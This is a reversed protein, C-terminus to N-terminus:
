TRAPLRLVNVGRPFTPGDVLNHDDTLFDAGLHEALVVYLADAATMNHRYIWAADVLPAISAHHLHWDRLRALAASAQTETIAKEVILRRRLVGLVEAYFHEPVWGESGGPILRAL